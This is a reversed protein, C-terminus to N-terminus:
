RTQDSGDANMRWVPNAPRNSELFYSTIRSVASVRDEALTNTLQRPAATQKM